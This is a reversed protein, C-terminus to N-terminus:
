NTKFYEDFPIGELEIVIMETDAGTRRSVEVAVEYYVLSEVSAVLDEHFVDSLEKKLADAEVLRPAAIAAYTDRNNVLEDVVVQKLEMVNM